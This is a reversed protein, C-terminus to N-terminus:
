TGMSEGTVSLQGIQILPQSRIVTSIIEQYIEVFCSAPGSSLVRSRRFVLRVLANSPHDCVTDRDSPERTVRCIFIFISFSAMLLDERNPLSERECHATNYLGKM